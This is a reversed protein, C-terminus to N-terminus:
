RKIQYIGDDMIGICRALIIFVSKFHYNISMGNVIASTLKAMDDDDPCGRKNRRKYAKEHSKKVAKYLKEKNFDNEDSSFYIINNEVFEYLRERLEGRFVRRLEKQYQWHIPSRSAQVIELSFVKEFSNTLYHSLIQRELEVIKSQDGITYSYNDFGASGDDYEIELSASNDKYISEILPKVECYFDERLNAILYSYRAM